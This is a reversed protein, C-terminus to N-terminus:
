VTFIASIEVARWRIDVDVDHLKGEGLEEGDHEGTGGQHGRDRNVGRRRGVTSDGVNTVVAVVLMVRKCPRVLFDVHLVVAVTVVVGDSPIVLLFVDLVVTVTVVVETSPGLLLLVYLVTVVTVVSGESPVVLFIDLVVTVVVMNTSPSVLFFIDLVMTVVVVVKTGAGVLLLVHLVTVVVVVVGKGSVVGLLINLVVTVAMVTGESPIVDLVVDFVAVVAVVVGLTGISFGGSRGGLSTTVVVTLMQEYRYGSSIHSRNIPEQNNQTTGVTRALIFRSTRFTVTENQELGKGRILPEPNGQTSNRQSDLVYESTVAIQLSSVNAVQWRIDVDEISMMAVSRVTASALGWKNAAMRTSAATGGSTATESTRRWGGGRAGDSIVMGESASVVLFIYLVTVVVVVVVVKGKSPTVLLLIDLVMMVMVVMVTVVAVMVEIGAGVLLIHFVTMAMLVAREDPVIFFIDFTMAAAVVALIVDLLVDLMTVGAVGAELVGACFEKSRRGLGKMVVMSLRTEM